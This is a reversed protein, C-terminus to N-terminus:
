KSPESLLSKLGAYDYIKFPAEGRDDSIAIFAPTIEDPLQYVIYAPVKGFSHFKSESKVTTDPLTDSLSSVDNYTRVIAIDSWVADTLSVPVSPSGILGQIDVKGVASMWADSYRSMLETYNEDLDKNLGCVAKSILMGNMGNRANLYICDIKIKKGSHRLTFYVEYLSRGAVNDYYLAAGGDFAVLVKSNEGENGIVNPVLITENGSKFQLNPGQSSAIYNGGDGKVVAAMTNFPLAVLLICYLLKPGM